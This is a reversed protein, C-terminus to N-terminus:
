GLIPNLPRLAQTKFEGCNLGAIVATLVYRMRLRPNNEQALVKPMIIPFFAFDFMFLELFTLPAGLRIPGSVKLADFFKGLIV